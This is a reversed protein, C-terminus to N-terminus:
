VQSFFDLVLRGNRDRRECGRCIRISYQLLFLVNTRVGGPKPWGEALLPLVKNRGRPMWYGTYRCGILGDCRPRELAMVDRPRELAMADRPRELAMADRPRELAM